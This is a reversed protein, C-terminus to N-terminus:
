PGKKHAIPFAIQKMEVLPPRGASLGGLVRGVPTGLYKLQEPNDQLNGMFDNLSPAILFDNQLKEASLKDSWVAMVYFYIRGADDICVHNGGFDVVFPVLDKSLYDRELGLLYTEELTNTNGDSRRVSLFRSM